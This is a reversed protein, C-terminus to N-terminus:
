VHRIEKGSSDSEMTALRKASVREAVKEIVDQLEDEAYISFERIATARESPQKNAYELFEDKSLTMSYVIESMGMMDSQTSDEAFYKNGITELTELRGFSLQKLPKGMLFIEGLWASKLKRDRESM